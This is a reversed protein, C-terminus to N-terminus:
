INEEKKIRDYIDSWSYVRTINDAELGKNTRTNMLYSKIGVNAVDKCNKLSDDIFLDIRKELAVKAKDQVNLVIDDYKINNEELWKLTLGYVDCNKEPWRATIIIIEHGEQKLKNIIEVAFTFPKLQKIIEGYYKNWFNMEEEENFNHIERTYFHSQTSIDKIKSDRGLENITYNQAYAFAVEYTDSITDDIDIGIRM